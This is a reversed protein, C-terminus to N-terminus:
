TVMGLVYHLLEDIQAMESATLRGAFAGLETEKDVASVQELLVRTQSGGLTIAPRFVAPRASASTPAVIVTSLAALDDSQLVVAYRAGKQQHGRRQAPRLRHIDGRM